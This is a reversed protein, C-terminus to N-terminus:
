TFGRGVLHLRVQCHQQMGWIVLDRSRQLASCCTSFCPGLGSCHHQNIAGMLLWFNSQGCTMILNADSQYLFSLKWTHKLRAILMCAGAIYPQM